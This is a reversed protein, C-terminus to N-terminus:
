VPSTEGEEYEDCILVRRVDGLVWNRQGCQGEASFEPECTTAVENGGEM